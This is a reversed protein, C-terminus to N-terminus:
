VAIATYVAGPRPGKKAHMTRAALDMVVTACTGVPLDGLVPEPHYPVTLTGSGAGGALVAQLAAVDQSTSGLALRRVTDLREPSTPIVFRGAALRPAVCHNTHALVGDVAALEATEDGAIEISAGHGVADGILFNSAKGHGSRAIANRASDLDPSDLVARLVVHVPVGDLSHPAVLFNLCVGLGADNLGIKALMGPECFALVRRGDAHVSRTIVALDELPELWDWTQGLVGGRAFYLATCEGVTANLIETRANLCYLQWPELGAGMAMAEIETCYAPEFDGVLERVRTARQRITAADIASLTFVQESYFRWAAAIRAAFHHGCALGRAHADGALELVPFSDNM